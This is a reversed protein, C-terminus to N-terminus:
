GRDPSVARLLEQVNPYAPAIRVLAQAHRRAGALDGQQLLTAALTFLLDPDTPNRAIAQDLVAVAEGARGTEQLAVAYVYAYRPNGPALSAAKALSAVAELISRSASSCSATPM